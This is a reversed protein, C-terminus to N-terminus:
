KAYNIMIGRQMTKIYERTSEDTTYFGIESSSYRSPFAMIAKGTQKGTILWSRVSLFDEIPVLTISPYKRYTEEMIRTMGDFMDVFKQYTIQDIPEDKEGMCKTRLSDMKRCMSQTEIEIRTAGQKISDDLTPRRYKEVLKKLGDQDNKYSQAFHKELLVNRVMMFDDFGAPRAAGESKPKTQQASLMRAKQKEILAKDILDGFTQEMLKALEQDTQEKTMKKAVCADITKKKNERYQQIRKHFLDLTDRYNKYEELSLLMEQNMLSYALSHPRYYAIMVPSGNAALALLKRCSEYFEKPASIIGYYLVDEIIVISDGAAVEDYLKNIGPVFDPYEGLYKTSLSNQIQVLNETMQKSEQMNDIMEYAFFIISLFLAFTASGSIIKLYHMTKSARIKTWFESM